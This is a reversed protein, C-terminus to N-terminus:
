LTFGDPSIRPEIESANTNVMSGINFPKKWSEKVDRRLSMYIDAKGYGGPIKPLIPSECFFLARGDSSVSVFSESYESNVHNGINKPEGWPDDVSKRRSVFIDDNGFGGPRDLSTFYLELGDTSIWPSQNLRNNILPSVSKPPGWPDFRSARRSVVCNGVEFPATFQVFYLELGDASISASEIVQASENRIIVV